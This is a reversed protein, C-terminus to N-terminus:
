GREWGWGLKGDRATHFLLIVHTLYLTSLLYLSSLQTYSSQQHAWVGLQMISLVHLQTKTLAWEPLKKLCYICLSPKLLAWSLPGKANLLALSYTLMIKSYVPRHVSVMAKWVALYHLTTDDPGTRGATFSECSLRTFSYLRDIFRPRTWENVWM